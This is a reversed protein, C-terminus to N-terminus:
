TKNKSNPVKGALVWNKVIGLVLDNDQHTIINNRNLTLTWPISVM